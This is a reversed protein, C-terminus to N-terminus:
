TLKLGNTLVLLTVYPLIVFAGHQFVDGQIAPSWEILFLVAPDGSVSSVTLVYDDRLWAQDKMNIDHFCLKRKHTVRPKQGLILSFFDVVIPRDGSSTGM